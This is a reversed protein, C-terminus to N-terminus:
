AKKVSGPYARTTEGDDVNRTAHGTNLVVVYEAGAADTGIGGVIVGTRWKRNDLWLVSRNNRFARREAPTFTRRFKNGAQYSRRDPGDGM